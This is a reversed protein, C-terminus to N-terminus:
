LLFVTRDALIGWLPAEIGSLTDHVSKPVCIKFEEDSIESGPIQLYPVSGSYHEWRRQGRNLLALESTLTSKFEPGLLDLSIGKIWEQVEFQRM